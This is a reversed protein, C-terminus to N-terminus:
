KFAIGLYSGNLTYFISASQLDLGCGVIDNDSFGKFAGKKTSFRAGSADSVKNGKKFM